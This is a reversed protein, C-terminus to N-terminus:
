NIVIHSMIINEFQFFFNVLASFQDWAITANFTGSNELIKHYKQENTSFFLFMAQM